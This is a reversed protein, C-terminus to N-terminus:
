QEQLRVVQEEFETPDDIARRDATAFLGVWTQNGGCSRTLHLVSIVLSQSAPSTTRPGRPLSSRFPHFSPNAPEEGNFLASAVLSGYAQGAQRPVPWMTV